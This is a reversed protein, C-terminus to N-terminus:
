IESYPTGQHPSPIVPFSEVGNPINSGPVYLVNVAPPLLQKMRAITEQLLTTELTQLAMLHSALNECYQRVM